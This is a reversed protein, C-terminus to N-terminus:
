RLKARKAARVAKRVLLRGATTFFPLKRKKAEDALWGVIIDENQECWAIGMEDMYRAKKNCSCTPSSEIGFGSLIKKLAAGVGPKPDRRRHPYSPHSNDVACVGPLVDHRTICHEVADWEYGREEALRHFDAEHVHIIAM